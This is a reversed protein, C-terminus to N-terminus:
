KFKLREISEIKYNFVIKCKTDDFLRIRSHHIIELDDLRITSTYDTDEYKVIRANPKIRAIILNYNRTELYDTHPTVLENRSKTIIHGTFYLHDILHGYFIFLSDGKPINKVKLKVFEKHRSEQFISDREYMDLDFDLIKHANLDWNEIEFINFDKYWVALTLIYEHKPNFRTIIIRPSFKSNADHFVLTDALPYNTIINVLSDNPLITTGNIEWKFDNWELYISSDCAEKLEYDIYFKTQSFLNVGLFCTIIFLCALKKLM